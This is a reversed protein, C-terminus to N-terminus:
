RYDERVPYFVDFIRCPTLSKGSHAANPPIVAVTGPTLVKTEENITMEFEGEIITTVQEHPHSHDPLAADPEITWHAITM